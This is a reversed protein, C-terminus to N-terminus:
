GTFFIIFFLCVVSYLLIPILLLIKALFNRYKYSRWLTSLLGKHIGVFKLMGSTETFTM